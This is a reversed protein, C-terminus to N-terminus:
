IDDERSSVIADNCNCTPEGSLDKVALKILDFLTEKYIFFTKSIDKHGLNKDQDGKSMTHAYDTIIGISCYCMRMELSLVVEPYHTMSIVDYGSKKYDENEARTSFRPGEIIVLSASDRISTNMVVSSEILQRRIDSCFPDTTSIHTTIPGNYFTDHRRYTKNIFQSCLVIDGIKWESRLCGFAGISIIRKVGLSWLAWINALYNIMHPPYIHNIGHRNFMLINRGNINILDIQSSPSGYPTEVTIKKIIEEDSKFGTGTIVAIEAVKKQNYIM